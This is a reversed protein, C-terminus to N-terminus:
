RWSVDVEDTRLYPDVSANEVKIVNGVAYNQLGQWAIMAANDINYQNELVFCKAGRQECMLRMMAQLRTNCAVGGGMLVEDKNCHALARETVEVIMAFVTEQLSYAIDEHRHGDDILKKTYTQIGGFSLDMGKVVYPLEIYNNSGEALQAIIPGGPFGRGMHRAITDLINGIGIDLTEGFIRYKESEYGIIQTNAGSVYCLIPDKADTLLHGIELHAICHNVGVLLKNHLLALTRISMAGIRLAHGIGPSQSFSLVDIDKMTVNAKDLAEQIVQKSHALHHVAVHYPIMGGEHTTLASRVNSLIKKKAIVAASFTHATSEIGLCTGNLKDEM